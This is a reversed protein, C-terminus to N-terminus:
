SSQVPKAILLLDSQTGSLDYRHEQGDILYHPSEVLTMTCPDIWTLEVKSVDNWVYYKAQRKKPFYCVITGNATKACLPLHISEQTNNWHPTIANLSPQLTWWEVSEELWKIAKGLQEAGPRQLAENWVTSGWHSLFQDATRMNWLGEAGYSHGKAGALISMWFAYRQLEPDDNGLIGEYIPELNVFIKQKSRQYAESVMFLRSGPDHGSQISDVDLWTPQGLIASSAQQTNPHVLLLKNTKDEDKLAEAVKKWSLIQQSVRESTVPTSILPRIFLSHKLTRLSVKVPEPLRSVVQKLFSYSPHLSPTGIDVEGTLCWVVPYKSFRRIIEKWFLSFREEGVSDMQHGWGGVLCPVLGHEIM